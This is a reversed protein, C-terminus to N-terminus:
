TNHAPVSFNFLISSFLLSRECVLAKRPSQSAKGDSSSKHLGPLSACGTLVIFCELITRIEHEYLVGLFASFIIFIQHFVLCYPAPRISSFRIFLKDFDAARHLVTNSSVFFSKDLVDVGAQQQKEKEERKLTEM